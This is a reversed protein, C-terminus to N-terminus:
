VTTQGDDQQVFATFDLYNNSVKTSKGNIYTEGEAILNHALMKGSLYNLLTTKGAGSAGIIALFEGPKVVGSVNHMIQRYDKKSKTHININKWVLEVCIRSEITSISGSLSQVSKIPMGEPVSKQIINVEPNIPRTTEPVIEINIRETSPSAHSIDPIAPQHLEM